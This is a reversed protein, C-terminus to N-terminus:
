PRVPVLAGDAEYRAMFPRDASLAEHREATFPPDYDTILGHYPGLRELADRVASRETTGAQDVARALIHTLDYAHAVGVPSVIARAGAVGLIRGAARVVRQAIADEAGIFSYTQVAAFDVRELSGRTLEFFDGGTVGWHSAVPLRQRAPLAAMERVLISGERENAVLLLAEAGADLLARYPRLLSGDGWNYWQVDVPSVAAGNKELYRRLAKENSRGWATNPLLVGIRRAGKRERLYDMMTPVAWGDRLSLRFVYNPSYGNDVIKNAAAWPDLLPLKLAHITALEEIVVPSFKACFVGVLDPQGSFAKLNAVGRAPVSRNDRVLLQLPRGGLVGGAANIEEIAVLIGARVADDSTSTAHGFEADLGIYVPAEEARAVLSAAVLWLMFLLRYGRRTVTSSQGNM